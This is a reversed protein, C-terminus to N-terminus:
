NSPSLNTKTFKLENWSIISHKKSQHTTITVKKKPQIPKCRICSLERIVAPDAALDIRMKIWEGAM